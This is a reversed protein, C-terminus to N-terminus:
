LRNLENNTFEIENSSTYFKNEVKDLLGIKGDSRRRVPIFDRLLKNGDYIRVYYVFGYCFKGYLFFLKITRNTFYSKRGAKPSILYNDDLKTWFENEGIGNQFKYEHPETLLTKYLNINKYVAGCGQIFTNTTESGNIGSYFRDEDGTALGSSMFRFSWPVFSPASFKIHFIYNGEPFGTDVYGGNTYLCDLIEYKTKFLLKRRLGRM